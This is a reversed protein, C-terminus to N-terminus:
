IWDPDALRAQNIIMACYKQLSLRHKVSYRNLLQKQENTLKISTSYSVASSKFETHLDDTINIKGKEIKKVDEEVLNWFFTSTKLDLEKAKYKLYDRDDSAKFYITIYVEGREAAIENKLNKRTVPEKTEKKPAETRKPAVPKVENKKEVKPEVKKEPAKAPKEEKKEVKAPEEKSVPKPTDLGSFMSTFDTSFANGTHGKAM